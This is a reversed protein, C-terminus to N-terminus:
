RIVRIRSAYGTNGASCHKDGLPTSAFCSDYCICTQDDKNQARHNNEDSGLQMQLKASPKHKLDSM